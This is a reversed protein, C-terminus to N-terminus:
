PRGHRRCSQDAARRAGGGQFPVDRASLEAYLRDVEAPSPLEIAVCAKHGARAPRDPVGTHQSIHGIEWAALIVGPM